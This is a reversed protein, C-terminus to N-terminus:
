FGRGCLAANGAQRRQFGSSSSCPEVSNRSRLRSVRRVVAQCRRGCGKKMSSDTDAPECKVIADATSHIPECRSAPRSALGRRRPAAARHSDSRRRPQSAPDRRTGRTGVLRRRRRHRLIRISVRASARARTSGTSRRAALVAKACGAATRAEATRRPIAATASRRAIDAEAKKTMEENPQSPSWRCMLPARVAAVLHPGPRRGSLCSEGTM